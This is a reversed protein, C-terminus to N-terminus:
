FSKHLYRRICQNRPFRNFGLLARGLLYFSRLLSRKPPLPQASIRKAEELTIRRRNM